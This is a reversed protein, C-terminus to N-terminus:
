DLEITLHAHGTDSKRLITSGDHNGAVLVGMINGLL